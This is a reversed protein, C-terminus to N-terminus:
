SKKGEKKPAITTANVKLKGRGPKETTSQTTIKSSTVTSNALTCVCKLYKINNAGEKKPVRTTPASTTVKLKGNGPV